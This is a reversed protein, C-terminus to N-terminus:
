DRNNAEELEYISNETTLIIKSSDKTLNIEKVLSTSILNSFGRGVTCRKGVEIPNTLLDGKISQGESIWISIKNNAQIKTLKYTVDPLEISDIKSM